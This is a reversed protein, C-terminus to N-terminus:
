LDHLITFTHLPFLLVTCPVVCLKTKMVQYDVQLWLKHSITESFQLLNYTGAHNSNAFMKASAHKELSSPNPM